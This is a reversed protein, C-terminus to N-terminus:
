MAVLQEIQIESAREPESDTRQDLGRQLDIIKPRGDQPSRTFRPPDRAVRLSLFRTLSNRSQFRSFAIEAFLRVFPVLGAHSLAAGLLNPCAIKRSEYNSKELKYTFPNYLIQLSNTSFRNLTSLFVFPLRRIRVSLGTRVSLRGFSIRM